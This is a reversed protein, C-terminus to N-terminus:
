PNQRNNFIEIYEDKVTVIIIHNVEDYKFDCINPYSVKLNYKSIDKLDHPFYPFKNLVYEKIIEIVKEKNMVINNNDVDYKKFELEKNKSELELNISILAHIREKLLIIEKDM